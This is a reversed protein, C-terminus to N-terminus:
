CGKKIWQYFDSLDQNGNHLQTGKEIYEKLFFPNGKSKEFIENIKYM